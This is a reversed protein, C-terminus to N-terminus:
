AEEAIEDSVGISHFFSLAVWGGSLRQFRKCFIHIPPLPFSRSAVAGGRCWNEAGRGWVMSIRAWEASSTRRKGNGTPTKGEMFLVM